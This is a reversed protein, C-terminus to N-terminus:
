FKVEMNHELVQDSQCIPCKMKRGRSTTDRGERMKAMAAGSIMHGCSLLTNHDLPGYIEKNIPCFFESHFKADPGTKIAFPLMKPLVQKEPLYNLHELFERRFRLGVEHCKVIPHVLFIHNRRLYANM